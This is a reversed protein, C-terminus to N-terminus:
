LFLWMLWGSVALFVGFPVPKKVIHKSKARKNLLVELSAYFLGLLSAVLLLPPLAYWGLWLGLGALLKADGLGIGDHGRLRRYVYNLTPFFALGVGAGIVHDRVPFRPEIWVAILGALFLTLTYLNLLRFTHFDHFALIALNIFLAMSLLLPQPSIIWLGALLAALILFVTVTTGTIQRTRLEVGSFDSHPESMNIGMVAGREISEM